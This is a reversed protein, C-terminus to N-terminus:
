FCEARIHIRHGHNALEDDTGKSRDIQYGTGGERGGKRGIRGREEKEKESGKKKCEKM